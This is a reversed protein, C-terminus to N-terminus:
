FLGRLEFEFSKSMEENSCKVVLPALINMKLNTIKFSNGDIIEFNYYSDSMGSVSFDFTNTQKIGDKYLFCEFIQSENQYIELPLPSVEVDIGIPEPKPPYVDKYKNMNAIQLIFDDDDATSDIYTEFHIIPVSEKIYTRSRLFDNKAKVKFVQSGFIFRDNIQISKSNENNQCFIDITGQPVIVSQNYYINSYKMDYDIVCPESIIKGTKIDIYRFENNCRRVISSKTIYKDNDTNATIWISDKFFYRQGMIRNDSLNFFKLDKFDDGLNLGTKPDIAHCIRCILPTFELTGKNLEQGIEFGDSAYEFSENIKEQLNSTYYQTSEKYNTPTDYM